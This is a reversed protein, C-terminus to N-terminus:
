RATVVAGKSGIQSDGQHGQVVANTTGVGVTRGELVITSNVVTTGMGGASFNSGAVAQSNGITGVQNKAASNGISINGGMSRIRDGAGSLFGQISEAKQDSIAGFFDLIGVVGGAITAIVDVINAFVDRISIIAARINEPKSLYNMFGEIKDIIGSKEVFDSVSQKIKEIFAAIREQLSANILQQYNEEGLAASLAKQNKYKELGIKLQQRANDTDKAGLISLMEQKKLMDAMSDRSMGMAAALSEQQIRNMKLYDASSGVQNTIEAAATALDNNLFAERAKALNIEKGTLLQAEFEKSISSEFDLFSDALADVEKLEMGMAKVTLLSKTLQAPYKSFQLGLVGSLSTVEKLIKQNQFQVGTAQKLGQVQALVSKTVDKAQRGSIIATQALGSRVDAELGAIDKLEINTSLIENSLRNTVGLLDVMETQSEVLKQTNVFLNGNAVNVDAFQMKLNRAQETSMNMARAFKVTQDQIGVIYDFAAKLGTILAGGIGLMAAPDFVSSFMSKAISKAGSAAVQWGGFIKSAAKGLASMKEQEKVVKRAKESMAEYAEEGVGLKTAFIKMLNGSIGMQRSVKKENDLHSKGLELEEEAIKAAVKAHELNKLEINGALKANNIEIQKLVRNRDQETNAKNLLSNLTNSFSIQRLTEKSLGAELDLVKQKAIYEKQNLRALEQQVQKVNITGRNLSELKAAIRTYAKQMNDLDRLSSKLLNNYDGQDEILERLADKADIISKKSEQQSLAM